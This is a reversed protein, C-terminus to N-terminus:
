KRRITVPTVPFDGQSHPRPRLQSCPAAFAERLLHSRACAELLHPLQASGLACPLALASSLARSDGPRSSLCSSWSSLRGWRVGGAEMWGWAALDVEQSYM